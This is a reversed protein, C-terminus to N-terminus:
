LRARFITMQLLDCALLLKINHCYGMFLCEKSEILASIEWLKNMKLLSILEFHWENNVWKFMITTKSYLFLRFPRKTNIARSM